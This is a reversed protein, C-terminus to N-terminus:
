VEEMFLTNKSKLKKIKVGLRKLCQIASLVDDVGIYERCSFYKSM